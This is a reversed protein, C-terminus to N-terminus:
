NIPKSFLKKCEEIKNDILLNIGECSQLIINQLLKVEKELFNNLVYASVDIKEPRGIGIRIRIFENGRM